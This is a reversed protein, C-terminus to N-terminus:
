DIRKTLPLGVKKRAQRRCDFVEEKTNKWNSTTQERKHLEDFTQNVKYDTHSQEFARYFPYTLSVLLHAPLNKFITNGCFSFERMFESGFTKKLKEYFM